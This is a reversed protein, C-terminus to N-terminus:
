PKSIEGWLRTMEGVAYLPLVLTDNLKALPETSVRIGMKLGKEHMFVRMSRMAGTGSAKVEVPITDRSITNWITPLTGWALADELTFSLGLEDALLPFLKYVFARGALLNAGGRRLKRASSGTLGFVVKYREILLHVFDLLAPVKQVEDIIVARGNLRSPEIMPLLLSPNAQLQGFTTPELLDIRLAESPPFLSNLLTKQRNRSGWFHFFSNNKLINTHRLIM